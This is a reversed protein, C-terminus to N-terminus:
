KVRKLARSVLRVASFIFNENLIEASFTVFDALFQPNPWM